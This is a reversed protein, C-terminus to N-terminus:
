LLAGRRYVFTSFFEVRAVRGDAYLRKLHKEVRAVDMGLDAAVVDPSKFCFAELGEYVRELQPQKIPATTM